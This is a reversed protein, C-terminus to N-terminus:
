LEDDFHDKYGEGYIEKASSVIMFAHPDIDKVIDRIKPYMFNKAACMIIRRNEGTYAGEGDVYTAGVDLEKLLKECILASKEETTIVYLLKASNGGYLVLDFLITFVVIAILTYCALEFNQFVAFAVGMIMVDIVMSIVGTKIYRFKKRLIKVIIDTGGTSSDMRFILGLGIGFLAGGLLAPILLGETKFIEVDKFAFNWLEIMLSSVVTAFLTSIAFKKGCFVAGLIFLPVNIAIILIGTINTEIPLIENIIIAIGTAGGPAINYPDLFIAVGLSYIICGLTIVSYDKLIKLVAKKTIKGNGNEKVSKM